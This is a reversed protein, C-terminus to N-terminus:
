KKLIQFHELKPLKKLRDIITQGDKKQSKHAQIAAIKQDWVDTIENSLDIDAKKYGPPFYIFYDEILARKDQSLCYYYLKKIFTLRYFVYTTALAVAIHDLHGSIGRLETAILMEPQYKKCYHEISEALKHYLNNCLEGDKFGLFHIQKVGLIKASNELEKERIQAIRAQENPDHHEGAEGRTACLLIDNNVKAIKAITGSPGFAEDDPHAFIALINM